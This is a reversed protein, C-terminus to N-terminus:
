RQRILAPGIDALRSCGTQAMALELEARLTYLMHAVGLMGAVALAHLQPRGIMVVNAGLALAKLVDTGQRVGSDLLLPTDPLAARIEAIVEMPSIAGDLVRGGHNSIVLADAGLEVAKRAAKVSLIGKVILPLQTQARLWRLDDWGPARQALPTGFLIHEDMLEGSHRLQEIGLLNAAEVGEPLPYGSRKISADVTWMTAQYGAAEARRLLSLTNARDPQSYLQFWLPASRGLEQSATAAAQAIEELPYSSLTSAVMGTQMAMAARACALEGEAHALRHYAVPALLVPWQLTQGLLNLRTHAGSLDALPEPQLRLEDFATRNHTLSLHQDAGSEIHAWAHAEIHHRAQAAYGALSDLGPPIRSLSPVVPQGLMNLPANM